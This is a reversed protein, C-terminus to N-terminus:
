MWPRSYNLRIMILQTFIGYVVDADTFAEDASHCSVTVTM